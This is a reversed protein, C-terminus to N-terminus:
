GTTPGIVGGAVLGAVVVALGILLPYLLQYFLTPRAMWLDGLRFARINLFLGFRHFRLEERFDLVADEEDDGKSLAEYYRSTVTEAARAHKEAEAYLWGHYGDLLLFIAAVVGALAGLEWIGQQVSFGVLGLWITVALGRITTATTVVSKIFDTTNAYDVEVLRVRERENDSVM